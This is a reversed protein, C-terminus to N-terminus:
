PERYRDRRDSRQMLEAARSHDWETWLFSGQYAAPVDRESPWITAIYRGDPARVFDDRSVDIGLTVTRGDPLTICIVFVAGPKLISRDMEIAIWGEPTVFCGHVQSRQLGLYQVVQEWDCPHAADEALPTLRELDFVRGDTGTGPRSFATGCDSDGRYTGVGAGSVRSGNAPIPLVLVPCPEELMGGIPNACDQALVPRRTRPNVYACEGKHFTRSMGSVDAVGVDQGPRLIIRDMEFVHARDITCDVVLSRLYAPLQSVSTLGADPDHAQFSELYNVPAACSSNALCRAADIMETGDPNRRLAEEILDALHNQDRIGYYYGTFRTRGADAAATSVAAIYASVTIVSETAMVAAPNEPMTEANATGTVTFALLAAAASAM